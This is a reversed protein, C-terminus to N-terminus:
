PMNLNGIRVNAPEKGVSWGFGESDSHCQSHHKLNLFTLHLQVLPSEMYVKRDISFLLM